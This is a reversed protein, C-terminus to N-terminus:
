LSVIVLRLALNQSQLLPLVQLSESSVTAVDISIDDNQHSYQPKTPFLQKYFTSATFFMGVTCPPTLSAPEIEPELFGGPPPCPLGTWYGQRSFGIPLPSQHAITRPPRGEQLVCSFRSLECMSACKSTNLDSPNYTM